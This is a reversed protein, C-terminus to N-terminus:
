PSPEKRSRPLCQMALEGSRKAEERLVAVRAAIKRHIEERNHLCYEITRMLAEVEVTHVSHIQTLDLSHIFRDIKPDYSIPVLPVNSLAALILSHLRMGIMLDFNAIVSAAERFTIPKDLIVSPRQMTSQLELSVEIDGPSQFQMPLIVVSWGQSALIDCASAVHKIYPHPTAWPRISVGVMPHKVPTTDRHYGQLIRAGEEPRIMAPDIAIAPDATVHIPPVRVGYELLDEKSRKDRVIIVDVRNVVNRILRRSQEKTVPGVGQAYFVVPKGLWKALRVIGLYYLISRSGTVDQLLSGGGLILMDCRVLERFIVFSNWRNYAAIGFMERTRAPNNSLVALEAEPHVRRVDSLIGFLVTDDGLNDFGYYGAILIRAM